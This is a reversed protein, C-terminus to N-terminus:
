TAAPPTSTRFSRPQWAVRDRPRNVAGGAGQNRFALEVAKVADTMPLLRQRRGRSPSISPEQVTLRRESSVGWGRAHCVARVPARGGDGASSAASRTDGAAAPQGFPRLSRDTCKGPSLVPGWSAVTAVSGAAVPQLSVSVTAATAMRQGSSVLASDPGAPSNGDVHHRGAARVITNNPHQLASICAM